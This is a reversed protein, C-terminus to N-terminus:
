VQGLANCLVFHSKKVIEGGYESCYVSRFLGSTSYLFLGVAM